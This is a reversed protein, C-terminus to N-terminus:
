IHLSGGIAALLMWGSHAPYKGIEFRASMGAKPFWITEAWLRGGYRSGKESPEMGDYSRKLDVLLDLGGTSWRYNSRKGYGDLTASFGASNTGGWGLVAILANSSGTINAPGGVPYKEGGHAYMIGLSPGLRNRNMIPHNVWKKGESNQSIVIEENELELKNKFWIHIAGEVRYPAADGKVVGFLPLTAGGRVFLRGTLEYVGTITSVPGGSPASLQYGLLAASIHLKGFETQTEDITGRVKEGTQTVEAFAM